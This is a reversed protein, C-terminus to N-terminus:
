RNLEENLRKLIDKLVETDDKLDGVERKLRDIQKISENKHQQLAKELTSKDTTLYQVQKRLNKVQNKLSDVSVMDARDHVEGDVDSFSFIICSYM